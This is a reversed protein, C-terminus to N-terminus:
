ATATRVDVWKMGKRAIVVSFVSENTLFQLVRVAKYTGYM